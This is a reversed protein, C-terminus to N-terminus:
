SPSVENLHWCTAKELTVATLTNKLYPVYLLLSITYYITPTILLLVVVLSTNFNHM